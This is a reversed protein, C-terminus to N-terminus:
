DAVVLHKCGILLESRGHYCLHTALTTKVILIGDVESRLRPKLDNGGARHPCSAEKSCDDSSNSIMTALTQFRRRAIMFELVCKSCTEHEVGRKM